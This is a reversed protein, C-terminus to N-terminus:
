QNTQNQTGDFEEKLTQYISETTDVYDRIEKTDSMDVDAYKTFYLLDKAEEESLTITYFKNLKM